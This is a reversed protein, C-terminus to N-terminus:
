LCSAHSVIGWQLTTATDIQEQVLVLQVKASSGFLAAVGAPLISYTPSTVTLSSQQRLLGNNGGAQLMSRVHIDDM